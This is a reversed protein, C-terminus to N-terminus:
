GDEHEESDDSGDKSLPGDVLSLHTCLVKTTWRGVSTERIRSGQTKTEVLWDPVWSRRSGGGAASAEVLTLTNKM